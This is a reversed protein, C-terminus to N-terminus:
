VPVIMDEEQTRVEPVYIVKADNVEQVPVIM